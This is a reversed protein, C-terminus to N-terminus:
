ARPDMFGSERLCDVASLLPTVHDIFDAKYRWRPFARIGHGTMSQMHRRTESLYARFSSNRTM